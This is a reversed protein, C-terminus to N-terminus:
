ILSVDESIRKWISYKYVMLNIADKELICVWMCVCLCGRM